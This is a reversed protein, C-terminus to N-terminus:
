AAVRKPPTTPRTVLILAHLRVVGRSDFPLADALVHRVQVGPGPQQEAPNEIRHEEGAGHGIEPFLKRLPHPGFEGARRLHRILRHHRLPDRIFEASHRRAGRLPTDAQGVPAVVVGVREPARGGRALRAHAGEVFCIEIRRCALLEGRARCEAALEEVAIVELEVVHRHQPPAPQGARGRHEHQHRDDAADDGVLLDEEVEEGEAPAPPLARPQVRVIRQRHEAQREVEHDGVGPQDCQHREVHREALTRRELRRRLTLLHRGFEAGEDLGALRAPRFTASADISSM